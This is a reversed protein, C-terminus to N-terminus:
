WGTIVTFISLAFYIWYLGFQFELFHAVLVYQGDFHYSKSILAPNNSVPGLVPVIKASLAGLRVEFHNRVVVVCQGVCLLVTGGIQGIGRRRALWPVPRGVVVVRRRVVLEQAIHVGRMGGVVRGSGVLHVVVGMVHEVRRRRGRGPLPM